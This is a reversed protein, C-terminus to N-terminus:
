VFKVARTLFDDHEEVSKKPKLKETILDETLDEVKFSKSVPRVKKEKLLSKRSRMDVTSEKILDIFDDIDSKTESLPKNRFHREVREKEKSGLNSTKESILLKKNSSEVLDILRLNEDLQKKLSKQLQATEAKAERIKRSGSMDIPVYQDEFLNQIGNIIPAYTETLATKHLLKDSIKESINFELYKDIGLVLKEEILRLEEGYKETFKEEFYEYIYQQSAEELKSIQEDLKKQANEAIKACRNECYKNALIELETTKKEVAEKIKNQVFTDAKKALLDSEEKLKSELRIEVAKEFESKIDKLDEATVAGALKELIKDM